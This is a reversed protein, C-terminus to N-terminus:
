ISLAKLRLILISDLTVKISLRCNPNLLISISNLEELEFAEEELELEVEPRPELKLEELLPDLEEEEIEDEEVM